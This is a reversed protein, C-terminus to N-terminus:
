GWDPWSAPEPADTCNTSNPCVIAPPKINKLSKHDFQYLPLSQFTFRFPEEPAKTSEGRDRVGLRSEKASKPTRTRVQLHEPRPPSSRWLATAPLRSTVGGRVPNRCHRGKDPDM